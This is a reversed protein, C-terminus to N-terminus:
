EITISNIIIDTYPKGGGAQSSSDHPQSAINRIVEIGEIAVGFTAYSGDLFSQEGDCLFFESSGGVKVDTSAMSIAGDVHKLDSEEFVINEYESSDESGDAFFRGAQVMFDDMIRYFIMDDYFGDNALKIFNDCTIPMKDQNLEVKIVGMSTDIVAIPNKEDNVNNNDSNFGIFLFVASFIIIIVIIAIIGITKINLFSNKPQIPRSRKRNINKQQAIM